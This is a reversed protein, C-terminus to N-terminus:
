AQSPETARELSVGFQNYRQSQGHAVLAVFASHMRNRVYVTYGLAEVINLVPHNKWSQSELHHRTPNEVNQETKEEVLIGVLNLMSMNKTVM